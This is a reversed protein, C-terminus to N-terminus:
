REFSFNFNQDVGAKKLLQMTYNFDERTTPIFGEINLEKKASLARPSQDQKLELLANRLNEVVQKDTTISVILTGDPNEGPDEGVRMLDPYNQRTKEWVRNKVIAYDAAQRALADLAAGHSSAKLITVQPQISGDLSHFYFEGSSALSSFIVKKNDFFGVDQTFRKSGKPGIVVAWYTSWGEVHVPRVLPNALRKIIMCVAIGSGSFMGDAKGSSFLEAAEPYTRAAVFSADIGRGKLYTLLPRYKAAAGQQDQMIIIRFDASAPDSYFLTAALVLFVALFPTSKIM